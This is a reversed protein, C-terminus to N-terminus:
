YAAGMRWGMVSPAKSLRLSRIMEISYVPDSCVHHGDSPRKMVNASHFDVGAGVNICFNSLQVIFDKLPDGPMDGALWELARAFRQDEHPYKDRLGSKISVLTDNLKDWAAYERRSELPVLREIEILYLTKGDSQVGIEEHSYSKVAYPGGLKMPPTLSEWTAPDVTLKWVLHDSAHPFVASFTGRAFSKGLGHKRIANKTGWDDLRLASGIRHAM